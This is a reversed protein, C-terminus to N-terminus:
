AKVHLLSKVREPIQTLICLARGDYGDEWDQWTKVTGIQELLGKHILTQVVADDVALWVGCNEGSKVHELILRERESLQKLKNVIADRETEERVKCERKHKLKDIASYLVKYLLLAMSTVWIWAITGTIHENMPSLIIRIFPLQLLLLLASTSFVSPLLVKWSLIKDSMQMIEKIWEFEQM